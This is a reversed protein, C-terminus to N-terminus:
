AAAPNKIAVGAKVKTLAGGAYIEQLYEQKNQSLSFNTFAEISNDGVTEYADGVFLVAQYDAANTKNFWSPTFIEKLEFTGALDRGLPLVLAGNKTESLKLDAKASKSLVAYIPGEAEIQAAAKIISKYLPEDKAPTYETAFTGTQADKLISVFSEIVDDGSATRGDGLVIAREIETIIRKPLTELVFKVLAGTDQNERIDEKNLTIYDYIFGARIVRDTFTLSMEKKTTGRKHGQARAGATEADIRRVTLGTKNVVNWITGAKEIGDSIASVLAGPLLQEVNTIGKSAVKAAWAKKFDEASAGANDQLANAFDVVAGKTNLYDTTAKSVQSPMASIADKAIEKNMEEEKEENSNNNETSNEAQEVEPEDDAVIEPYVTTTAEKKLVEPTEKEQSMEDGKLSKVALLRAERNAGRFVLSVEIIEANSITESEFNYDFDSMTISFANSLHGEELLLLMEQAIERKSIGAEFILEGNEYFASRVSGITDRVDGSHNLILPIDVLDNVGETPIAGARIEGGQKLPLRLSAVDVKEYHRDENVSSAVFRIRREENVEVSKSIETKLELATKKVKEAM